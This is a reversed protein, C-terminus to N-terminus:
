WNKTNYSGFVLLRGILYKTKLRAWAKAPADRTIVFEEM